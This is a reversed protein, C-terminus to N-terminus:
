AGAVRRWIRPSLERIIAIGRQVMQGADYDFKQKEAADGVDPLNARINYSACRITSMALDSCVALDSLLYRNVKDVIKDALELMAIAITGM